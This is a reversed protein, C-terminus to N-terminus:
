DSETEDNSATASIIPTFTCRCNPDEGPQVYDGDDDGVPAGEALNFTHGDFAVHLPRPKQSGGSHIWEGESIGAYHMRGINLANFTKRTQDMATNHAWNATQNGYGDLKPILEQLGDGQQISHLLEDSIQALYRDPISKIFSTSQAVAAKLIEKVAPSMMEPDLLLKKGAETLNFGQLSTNIQQKSNQTLEDIMTEAVYAALDAFIAEYQAKFKNTLIRAQSGASADMGVGQMANIHAVVHDSKFLNTVERKTQNQMQHIAHMIHSVYRAQVGASVRLVKGRWVVKKNPNDAILHRKPAASKRAKIQASMKALLDTHKSM